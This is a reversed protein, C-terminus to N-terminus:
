LEIRFVTGGISVCELCVHISCRNATELSSDESPEGSVSCFYVSAKSIPSHISLFVFKCLSSSHRTLIMVANMVFCGLVSPKLSFFIYERMTSLDFNECWPIHPCPWTEGSPRLSAYKGEEEPKPLNGANRPKCSCWEMELVTTVQAERGHTQRQTKRKTCVCTM